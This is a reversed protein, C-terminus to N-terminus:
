RIGMREANALITRLKVPPMESLVNEIRKLNEARNPRMVAYLHRDPHTKVARQGWETMEFYKRDSRVGIDGVGGWLRMITEVSRDKDEIVESTTQHPKIRALPRSMPNNLGALCKTLLLDMYALILQALLVPVQLITLIGNKVSLKKM